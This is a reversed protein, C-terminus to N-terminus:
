SMTLLTLSKTVPGWLYYVWFNSISIDVYICGSYPRTLQSCSIIDILKFLTFALIWLVRWVCSVFALSEIIITFARMTLESKSRELYQHDHKNHEWSLYGDSCLYSYIFLWYLLQLSFPSPPLSPPFCVTIAVVIALNYTEGALSFSKRGPMRVTM